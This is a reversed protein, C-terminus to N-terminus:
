LQKSKSYRFIVEYINKLYEDDLKNGYLNSLIKKERALDEVALKNMKKHKSIDLVLEIRRNLLSVIDRDVKDIEERLEDIVNM